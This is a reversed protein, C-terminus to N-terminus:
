LEAPLVMIAKSGARAPLVFVQTPMGRSMLGPAAHFAAEAGLGAILVVSYRPNHPNAAAAMVATGANAYTEGQVSFSRQGFTLPLKNQMAAVVSNNDPRGILLLHHSKLEDQSVEKDSRYPVTLNSHQTVIARQLEQAAELNSAREDGAGYVILTNEL